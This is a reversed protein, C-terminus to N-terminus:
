EVKNKIEKGTLKEQVFRQISDIKTLYYKKRHVVIFQHNGDVNKRRIMGCYDVRVVSLTIQEVLVIIFLMAIVKRHIVVMKVIQVSRLKEKFSQCQKVLVTSM